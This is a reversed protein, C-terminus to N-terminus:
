NGVANLLAELKFPKTLYSDFPCNESKKKIEDNEGATMAIIKCKIMKQSKIKKITEIGDLVPMQIDMLIVDIDTNKEIIELAEKGHKAHIIRFNKESLFKNLFMANDFCDEVILIKRNKGDVIYKKGNTKKDFQEKSIQIDAELEFFFESGSNIESKIKLESKLTKVINYAVTLGIGLGSYKRTQSSDIQYFKEWLKNHKNKEIGIGTDKVYFYIKSDSLIKYGAEVFGSSTFKFANDLLNILVTRIKLYDAIIFIDKKCEINLKFNINKLSSYKHCYIENIEGFIDNINFVENFNEYDNSELKSIALLNEITQLLSESSKKIVNLYNKEKDNKLNKALLEVYGIITTMPTRIEHSLNGIFENKIKLSNNSKKKYIGLEKKLKQNELLIKKHKETIKVKNKLDM